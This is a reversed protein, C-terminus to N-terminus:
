DQTWVKEISSGNWAFVITWSELGSFGIADHKAHIVDGYLGEVDGPPVPFVIATGQNAEEILQFSWRGTLEPRALVLIATRSTTGHALVLAYDTHGDGFFDVAAVGACQRPQSNEVIRRDHRSLMALTMVKALPFMVALEQQLQTPIEPQCPKAPHQSGLAILLSLFVVNM